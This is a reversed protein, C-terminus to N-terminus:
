LENISSQPYIYKIFQFKDSYSLFKGSKFFGNGKGEAFGWNCHFFSDRFREIRCLEGNDSRYYKDEYETIHAGDIIWAHGIEKNPEHAAIVVPRGNKIEYSIMSENYGPVLIVDTYGMREYYIKANEMSAVTQQTEEDLEVNCGRAISYLINAVEDHYGHQYTVIPEQLYLSWNCYRGNITKPYKYYAFTQAVSIPVCGVPVMGKNNVIMKDRYPSGQDWTTKIFAERKVIDKFTRKYGCYHDWHWRSAGYIASDPEIGKIKEHQELSLKMFLAPGEGYEPDFSGDESMAIVEPCDFVNEVVAFGGENFNIILFDFDEISRSVNEKPYREISKVSLYKLVSRSECTGYLLRAIAQKAEEIAKQEFDASVRMTMDKTKEGSFDLEDNCSYAVFLLICLYMLKKMVHLILKGRQLTIIM